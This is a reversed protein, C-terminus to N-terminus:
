RRRGGVREVVGRHDPPLDFGQGLKHDRESGIGGIRELVPRMAPEREALRGALHIGTAHVTGGIDLLLGRPADTAPPM